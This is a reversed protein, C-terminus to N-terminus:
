IRFVEFVIFTKRVDAPSFSKHELPQQAAVNFYHNNIILVANTIFSFSKIHLLKEEEDEREEEAFDAYIKKSKSGNDHHRDSSLTFDSVVSSTRESNLIQDPEFLGVNASTKAYLGNAGLLLFISQLVLFSKM